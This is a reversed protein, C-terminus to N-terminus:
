KVAKVVAELKDRMEKKHEILNRLTRVNCEEIVYGAILPFIISYEGWIQVLDRTAEKYKGWTVAESFTCGSLGADLEVATTIQLGRDAGEYNIGLIQSITPGTQQIFNKPGGGGLEIFGTAKSSYVIAASELIDLSGDIVINKTMAAAAINMGISHNATSDWFIPVGYKAAMAVFSREPHPANKLVWQGLRHNFDASSLRRKKLTQCFRRIIEDQAELTDEEEIYIDYIRTIGQARLKTDDARPSGQNVPLNFAFHLDHYVQAGTSCIVDIFGREILEIVIGGMGGAIGVGAIGLWITDNENAMKKFLHAGDALNRAQISISGYYDILNRYTPTIPLRQPVIRKGQM